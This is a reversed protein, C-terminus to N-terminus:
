ALPGPRSPWDHEQRVAELNRKITEIEVRLVERAAIGEDTLHRDDNIFELAERLKGEVDELEAELKARNDERMRM